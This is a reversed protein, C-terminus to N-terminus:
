DPKTQVNDESKEKKSKTLSKALLDLKSAGYFAGEFEFSNEKKSELVKYRKGLASKVSSVSILYIEGDKTDCPICEQIIKHSCFKQPNRINCGNLKDLIKDEYMYKEFEHTYDDYLKFDECGFLKKNMEKIIAAIKEQKEKEKKNNEDFSRDNEIKKVNEIANEIIPINAASIEMRWQCSLKDLLDLDDLTIRSGTNLVQEYHCKLSELLKSGQLKKPPDFNLFLDKLIEQLYTNDGNIEPKRAEVLCPHLKLDMNKHNKGNLMFNKKYESTHRFGMTRTFANWRRHELWALGEKRDWFSKVSKKDEETFRESSKVIAFHQYLNCRKQIYKKYNEINEGQDGEKSLYDFLSTEFLGLSFAKYKLHMARALDAWYTYNSDEKKAVRKMNDNIHSTMLQADLYAKGTSNALLKSKSMYVNDCSYVQDLNGFSYMFIDHKGKIQCQYSSQENLTKSLMPDFVAYAIVVNNDGKKAEELHKKGVAGKLKDAISINDSDNGLAIIFYDSNLIEKANQNKEDWFGGVKLDSKVYRVRCYPKNKSGKSDYVLSNNPSSKEGMVEVTDKIEPNVYDIKAWFDEVNDKSVVNLTLDCETMENEKSIMMQGFWYASLFAETGIVGNGLITVSLKEPNERGVLPEYLPVDVFLNHVLNRVGNVPIITPKKKLLKKKESDALQLNIKKEVQVYTDSQVFLYISSDNIYKLNHDDILDMLTQLNGFENSDMLYYERKGYSPKAVHALDDRICIAGYKKAELLLEYEKEEEDDIYTDTFILIPKNKGTTGSISKALALSEANLESFFCKKKRLGFFYAVKLQVKPFVKTLIDLVIAGGAIPAIINLASAYFVLLFRVFGFLENETSILVSVMSEINIIYEAYEEEMSFTRLAGFLANIFSEAPTLGLSDESPVIIEFYGVAFRLLWISLILLSSFALATGIGSKTRKEPSRKNKFYKSISWMTSSFFTVASLTILILIKWVQVNTM